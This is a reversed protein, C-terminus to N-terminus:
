AGCHNLFGCASVVPELVPIDAIRQPQIEGRRAKALLTSWTRFFEENLSFCRATLESEVRSLSSALEQESFCAAAIKLRAIRLEDEITVPIDVGHRAMDLKMAALVAWKTGYSRLKDHTAGAMEDNRNMERDEV